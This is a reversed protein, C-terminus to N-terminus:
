QHLCGEKFVSPVPPTESGVENGVHHASPELLVWRKVQVASSRKMVMEEVPAGLGERLQASTSDARCLSWFRRSQHLLEQFRGRYQWAQGCGERGRRRYEKKSATTNQVARMRKVSWDRYAYRGMNSFGECYFWRRHDRSPIRQCRGFWDVKAWRNRGPIPFVRIGAFRPPASRDKRSASGQRQHRSPTREKWPFFFHVKKGSIRVHGNHLTTLSYSQNQRLYEENGIRALTTELLRVVTALVKEKPLGPPSLDRKVRARIRPLAKGFDAM